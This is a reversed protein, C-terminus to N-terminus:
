HAIFEFSLTSMQEFKKGMFLMDTDDLDHHWHVIVKKEKSMSELLFILKVIQKVSSSNLYQLHFNFTMEENPNAAYKNLWDFVPAYFSVADEPHSWGSIEFIGNVKDLNIGPITNGKAYIILPNM